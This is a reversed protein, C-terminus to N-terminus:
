TMGSASSNLTVSWCPRSFTTVTCTCRGTASFGYRPPNLFLCYPVVNWWAMVCVAATCFSFRFDIRKWRSTCVYSYLVLDVCHLRSLPVCIGFSPRNTSLARSTSTCGRLGYKLLASWAATRSSFLTIMWHWTRPMAARLRALCNRLCRASRKASSAPSAWRRQSSASRRCLRSTSRRICGLVNSSKLTSYLSSSAQRNLSALRMALDPNSSAALLAACRSSRCLSVFSNCVISLSLILACACFRSEFILLFSSDMDWGFTHACASPSVVVTCVGNVVRAFSSMSKYLPRRNGNSVTSSRKSTSSCTFHVTFSNSQLKVRSTTSKISRSASMNFRPRGSFDNAPRRRRRALKNRWNM